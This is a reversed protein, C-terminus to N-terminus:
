RGDMHPLWRDRVEGARCRASPQVADPTANRGLRVDGLSIKKRNNAAGPKDAKRDMLLMVVAATIKPVPCDRMVFRSGPKTPERLCHEIVLRRTTQSRADLAKFRRSGFYQAALWGLTGASAGAIGKQPKAEGPQALAHVAEAYAQAFEPTGKKERLRIKRGARRVYIRVNGHRDVDEKLHPFDIRMTTM